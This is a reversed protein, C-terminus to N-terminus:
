EFEVAASEANESATQHKNQATQTIQPSASFIVFFIKKFSNEEFRKLL